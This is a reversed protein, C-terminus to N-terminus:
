GALAEAEEPLVQRLMAVGTARKDHPLHKSAQAHRHVFLRRTMRAALQEPLSSAPTFRVDDIYRTGDDTPEFLHHHEFFDFLANQSRDVFHEAPKSEVVRTTWSVGWPWLTAPFEGRGAGRITQLLGDPDDPRFDFYPWFEKRAFALETKLRWVDDVPALFRTWVRLRWTPAVASM